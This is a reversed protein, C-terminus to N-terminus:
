TLSSFIIKPAAYKQVHVFLFLVAQMLCDLRGGGGNKPGDDKPQPNVLATGVHKGVITYYRKESPSQEHKLNSEASLPRRMLSSCSAGSWIRCVAWRRLYTPPSIDHMSVGYVEFYIYSGRPRPAEIAM